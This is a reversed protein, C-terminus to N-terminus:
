FRYMSFLRLSFFMDFLWCLIYDSKLSFGLCLLGKYIGNELDESGERRISRAKSTTTNASPTLDKFRPSRMPNHSGIPRDSERKGEPIRVRPSVVFQVLPERSM